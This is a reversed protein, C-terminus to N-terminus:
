FGPAFREIQQEIIVSMDKTSGNPVHCYAWVTNKGEPARTRDFVSQQALLAFPKEPHKGDWIAQEGAAIEEIDNGIHVTAAQGCNKDTFPVEGEIAFDMKFVGPGYRYKNLQWQYLASFQHGAITLLQKPTTDLLVAKSSPM